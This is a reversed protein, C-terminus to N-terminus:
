LEVILSDILRVDDFFVALSLLTRRAVFDLEELTEPDAVSAYDLRALPESQITRAILARLENGNKEGTLLQNEASRLARYLVAASERQPASLRTNRSSMALGDDERVIPCVVVDINFNLDRVMRRIVVAQQADKQGFYARTPEFINFLKAVVTTVGQFHNPRSAGELGSTIESVQVLTQFGPPYMNAAGPVFVLDVQEARLLRLDQEVDRPYLALDEDPAFQTPNVFISVAIRDNESRARRVLSFHGPHLYGMTPVLGWYLTPDSWRMQRVEDASATVIM